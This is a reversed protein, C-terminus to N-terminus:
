DLEGEEEEGNGLFTGDEEDEEGFGSYGDPRNEDNPWEDEGSDEEQLEEGFLSEGEDVQAWAPAAVISVAWALLAIAPLRRM